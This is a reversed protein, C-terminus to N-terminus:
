KTRIFEVRRNLKRGASDSNNAVPDAEGKGIAELRSSEIGQSVLYKVVADARKQSLNQNNESGGVDDTYGLVKLTVEPFNRLSQAIDNLTKYSSRRLENSAFGFIIAPFTTKGLAIAKNPDQAGAYQLTDIRTVTVTDNKVVTITDNKILIVTDIKINPVETKHVLDPCGDEDEYGDYDEADQPCKDTNNPNGDFDTDAKSGVKGFGLTLVAGVIPTPQTGYVNSGKGHNTSWQTFNDQTSLSGEIAFQMNLGSAFQKKTGLSLTLYDEAFIELFPGDTINGLRSKGYFDTYFSQTPSYLWELALAGQMATNEQPINDKEDPYFLADMGFNVHLLIPKSKKLRTFDFTWALMPNLNFGGSTYAGGLNTKSVHAYQPERQFYGKDFSGTPLTARMIYGLRVVADSKLGPHMIKLSLGLDGMGEADSRHNSIVDQYFPLDIALDMWNSLGLAAYFNQSYLYVDRFKTDPGVVDHLSEHGYEGKISLGIDFSGKGLSYASYTHNIGTLGGTNIQAGMVLSASSLGIAMLSLPQKFLNKLSSAM